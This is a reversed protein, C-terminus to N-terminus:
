FHQIASVHSVNDIDSEDESANSTVRPSISRIDIDLDTHEGDSELVACLGLGLGMRMYDEGKGDSEGEGEGDGVVVAAVESNCIIDCETRSKVNCSVVENDNYNNNNNLIQKQMKGASVAIDNLNFQFQRGTEASAGELGQSSNSDADFKNPTSKRKGSM